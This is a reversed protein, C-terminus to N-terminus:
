AKHSLRYAAPSEDMVKKFMQSFYVPDDYGVKLAIDRISLDTRILLGAAETIRKNILYKIPSTGTQSKFIHSLYYKSIYVQESLSDLTIPSTYNKDIYDKIRRCEEKMGSIRESRSQYVRLILVLLACALSRSMASSLMIKNASESIIDTFFSEIKYRYDQGAIVPPMERSILHDESLDGVKFHEIGLFVLHLRSNKVSAECHPVGPNIVILDGPKLPYVIGSVTIIGTGSLVYLIECFDHSHLEAKFNPTNQMFGTYVIDMKDLKVGFGEDSAADPYYHTHAM